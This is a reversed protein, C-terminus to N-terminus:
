LGKFHRKCIPCYSYNWGKEEILIVKCNPCEGYIEKKFWHIIREKLKIM